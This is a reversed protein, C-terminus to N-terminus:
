PFFEGLPFIPRDRRDVGLRHDRHDKVVRVQDVRRDITCWVLAVGTFDRKGPFDLGAVAISAAFLASSAHGSPFASTSPQRVSLRDDGTNTPRERRFLRKIGQNVILSEAGLLAALAVAQDPRGKVFARAISIGHWILSFDGIHSATTFIADAAPSGRLRELMQDACEDFRDVAPGFQSQGPVDGDDVGVGDTDVPGTSM